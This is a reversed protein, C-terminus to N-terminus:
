AVALRRPVRRMVLPTGAMEDVLASAFADRDRYTVLPPHTGYVSCVQADLYWVLPCGCDCDRGVPLLALPVANMIGGGM